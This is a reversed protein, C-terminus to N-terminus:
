FGGILAVGAEKLGEDLQKEAEARKEELEVTKKELTTLEDRSAAMDHQAQQINSALERSRSSLPSNSIESQLRREQEVARQHDEALSPTLKLVLERTKRAEKEPNKVEIKGEEFAKEMDKLISHLHRSSLFQEVPREIFGGISDLSEEPLRKESVALKKYKRMSRAISGLSEGIAAEISKRTSIAGELERQLGAIKRDELLRAREAQADAVKKELAKLESRAYSLRSDAAEREAALADLGGKVSRVRELLPIRGYSELHGDLKKGADILNKFEKQIRALADGYAYPLYRGQSVTIKAMKELSESLRRQFKKVRQYGAMSEDEGATIRDIVELMSSVYEPKSTKIIKELRPPANGYPLAKLALVERRLRSSAEHVDAIFPKSERELDKGCRELETKIWGDLESFSLGRRSGSGADGAGLLRDWLGM